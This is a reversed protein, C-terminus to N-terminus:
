RGGRHTSPAVPIFGTLEGLRSGVWRVVERQHHAIAEARDPELQEGLLVWAALRLALRGMALELDIATDFPLAAVEDGIIADMGALRM